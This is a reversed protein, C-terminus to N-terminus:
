RLSTERIMYLLSTLRTEVRNEQVRPHSSNLHEYTYRLEIFSRLGRRLSTIEQSEFDYIGASRLSFKIGLRVLM